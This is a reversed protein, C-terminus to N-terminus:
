PFLFSYYTHKANKEKERNNNSNTQKNKLQISMESKDRIDKLVQQNYFSM